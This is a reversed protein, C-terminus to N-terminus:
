SLTEIASLLGNVYKEPHDRLEYELQSINSDYTESEAVTGTVAPGWTGPNHNKTFKRQALM